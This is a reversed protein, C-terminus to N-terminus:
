RMVKDSWLSLNWLSQLWLDQSSVTLSQQEYQTHCLEGAQLTQLPSLPAPHSVSLSLMIYAERSDDVDCSVGSAVLTGRVSHFHM